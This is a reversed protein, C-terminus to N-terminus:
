IHILSLAQTPFGICTRHNTIVVKMPQTGGLWLCPPRGCLVRDGDLLNRVDVIGSPTIYPIRTRRAVYDPVGVQDMRLEPSPAIVMRISGDVTFGTADGHLIGTKGRLTGEVWKAYGRKDCFGMSVSMAMKAEDNVLGHRNACGEPPLILIGNVLALHGICDQHDTCGEKEM